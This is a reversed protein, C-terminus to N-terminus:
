ASLFLIESTIKDEIINEVILSKKIEDTHYPLKIRLFIGKERNFLNLGENTGVWINGVKDEYICKIFNSSISKDNNQLHQYRIFTDASRDYLNLGGGSSKIPRTGIWLNNFHDEYICQVYDGSISGPDTKSNIYTIMKYGDYKALGRQTGFWMYGLHDQFIATGSNEPLGDEITIHEFRPEINQPFSTICFLYTIIFTLRLINEPLYIRIKISNIEM